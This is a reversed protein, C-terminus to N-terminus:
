MQIMSYINHLKVFEDSNHTHVANTLRVKESDNIMKTIARAKCKYRGKCVYACRWNTSKAFTKDKIFKYGGYILHTNGRKSSEFTAIEYFGIFVTFM